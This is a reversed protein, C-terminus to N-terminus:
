ARYVETMINLQQNFERLRDLDGEEWLDVFKRNIEDMEEVKANFYLNHMNEIIDNLLNNKVENLRQAHMIEERITGMEEDLKFAAEACNILRKQLDMPINGSYKYKLSHETVAWFNMSLTRIQIEAPVEIYGMATNLPYRVIIHYSRYGSPKTNTIYDREEEIFLDRGDRERVLDIVKQIDEVFQCLIRIGAIDEIKDRIEDPSIKKRSAKELISSMKKVRGTVAEIPSYMGLMRYENKISDFKLTLEKVAQEYPFLMEKLNYIEM